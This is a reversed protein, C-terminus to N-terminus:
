RILTRLLDLKNRLKVKMSYDVFGKAVTSNVIVVSGDVREMPLQDASMNRSWVIM